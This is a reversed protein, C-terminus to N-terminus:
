GGDGDLAAEAVGPAGAGAEDWRAAAIAAAQSAALAAVAVAAPAAAAAARRISRQPTLLRRHHQHRRHGGAGTFNTVITGFTAASDINIGIGIATATGAASVVAVTIVSGSNCTEGGPATHNHYLVKTKVCISPLM